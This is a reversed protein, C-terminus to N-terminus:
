VYLRIFLDNEQSSIMRIAIRTNISIVATLAMKPLSIRWPISLKQVAAPKHHAGGVGVGVLVGVGVVVGKGVLMGAGVPVGVGVPVGPPYTCVGM